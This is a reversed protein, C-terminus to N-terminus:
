QTLPLTIEYITYLELEKVPRFVGVETLITLLDEDKMEPRTTHVYKVTLPKDSEISLGIFDYSPNLSYTVHIRLQKYEPHTELVVHSVNGKFQLTFSASDLALKAIRNNSEVSFFSVTRDWDIWASLTSLVLYTREKHPSAEYM